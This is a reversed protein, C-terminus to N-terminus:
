LLYQKIIEQVTKVSVPNKITEFTYILNEGPFYGANVYANMKETMQNAYNENDIMGFHEWLFEQRTLLNLCCFDPHVDYNKLRVPMEYRFPVHMKYLTEAILMESKSRVRLGFSTKYVAANETFALPEYSVLLWQKKYEADSVTVPTVLSYNLSEPFLIRKNNEQNEIKELVAVCNQVALLEKKLSPMIKIDYDKQALMKIFKQNKKKIYIGNSNNKLKQYFQLSGNNKNIRLGGEPADNIFRQISVTQRKLQKEREKLAKLLLKSPPLNEKIENM